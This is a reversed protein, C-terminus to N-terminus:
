QQGPPSAAAAALPQPLVGQQNAITATSAGVLLLAWGKDPGWTGVAKGGFFPLM